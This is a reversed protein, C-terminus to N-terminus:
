MGYIISVMYSSQFNISGSLPMDKIGYPSNISLGAFFTTKVVTYKRTQFSNIIQM